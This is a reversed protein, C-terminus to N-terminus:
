PSALPESPAEIQVEKGTAASREIADAVIVASLAERGGCVTPQGSSICALFHAIEDRYIGPIRGDPGPTFLYAQNNAQTRNTTYLNFSAAGPTVEIMGVTGMVEMLQARPGSPGDPRLWSTELIGIAGNEFRVLSLVADDVGFRAMAKRVGRASASVIRSGIVWQLADIDHVALYYTVSTRGHLRLAESWSTNRRTYAHVVEGIEGEKVAGRARAYAPDFRLIHGVLLVLHRQEAARVIEAAEGIRTALPKEIFLHKGAAAAALAPELHLHDPTTIIVADVAPERLLDKYSSYAVAHLEQGLDRARDEIADAIGVVRAEPLTALIRAFLGGMLGAGIVGVGIRRV